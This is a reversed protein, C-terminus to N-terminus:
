GVLDFAGFTSPSAIDFKHRVLELRQARDHLAFHAALVRRMPDGGGPAVSLDVDMSDDSEFQFAAARVGSMNVLVDFEPLGANLYSTMIPFKSDHLSFIEGGMPPVLFRGDDISVPIESEVLISDVEGPMQESGEVVLGDLRVAVAKAPSITLMLPAAAAFAESFKTEWIQCVSEAPFSVGTKV